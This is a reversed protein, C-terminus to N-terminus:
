CRNKFKKESEKDGPNKDPHHKMAIRRYARKIDSQSSDRDVGLIEYFDRM